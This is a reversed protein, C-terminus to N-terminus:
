DENSITFQIEGVLPRFADKQWYCYKGFPFGNCPMATGYFETNNQEGTTLVLVDLANINQVWVPKSWDIETTAQNIQVKKM